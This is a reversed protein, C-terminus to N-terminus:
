SSHTFGYQKPTVKSCLFNELGKLPHHYKIELDLTKLKVIKKQQVLLGPEEHLVM